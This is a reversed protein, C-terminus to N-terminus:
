GVDEAGHVDRQGRGRRRDTAAGGRGMKANIAATTIIQFMFLMAVRVMPDLQRLREGVTGDMEMFLVEYEELVGLQNDTLGGPQPDAGQSNRACCTPAPSRGRQHRYPVTDEAARPSRTPTQEETILYVAYEEPDDKHSIQRPLAAGKLKEIIKQKRRCWQFGTFANPFRPRRVKSKPVTFVSEEDSEYGVEEEEGLDYQDRPQFEGDDFQDAQEVAEDSEVVQALPHVPAAAPAASMPRPEADDGISFYTNRDDDAGVGVDGAVTASESRAKDPSMFASFDTQGNTGMALLLQALPKM